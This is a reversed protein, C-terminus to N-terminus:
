ESSKLLIQSHFNSSGELALLIMPDKELSKLGLLTSWFLLGSFSQPRWLFLGFNNKFVLWFPDDALVLATRPSHPHLM